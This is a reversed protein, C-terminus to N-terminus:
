PQAECAGKKGKKKKREEKKGEKGGEKREKKKRGGEKKKGKGKFKKGAELVKSNKGGGVPPPSFEIIYQGAKKQNEGKCHQHAIDKQFVTLSIILSCPRICPM